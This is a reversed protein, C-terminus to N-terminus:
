KPPLGFGNEALAVHDPPFKKVTLWAKAMNHSGSLLNKDKTM